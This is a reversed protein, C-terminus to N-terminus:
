DDWSSWANHDKAMDEVNGNTDGSTSSSAQSNGGIYTNGSDDARNLSGSGSLLSAQIKIGCLETIPKIYKKM